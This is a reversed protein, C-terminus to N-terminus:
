KSYAKHFPDQAKRELIEVVSYLWQMNWERIFGLKFHAPFRLLKGPDFRPRTFLVRWHLELVFSNRPQSKQCYGLLAMQQSFHNFVAEIACTASESRFSDEGVHHNILLFPWALLSSHIPSYINMWGFWVNSASRQHSKKKCKKIQCILTSQWEHFFCFINKLDYFILYFRHFCM